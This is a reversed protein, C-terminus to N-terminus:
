RSLFEILSKQQAARFLELEGPQRPPAPSAGPILFRDFKPKLAAPVIAALGTALDAAALAVMPEPDAALWPLIAMARAAPLRGNWVLAAVDRALTLREAATLLSRRRTLAPLLDPDPLTRYYGAAGANAFAWAPCAALPIELSSAEMVVCRGAFGDGKVCVPMTRPKDDAPLGLPAYLDQRLLLRAGSADCRRGLAIVPVGPRDLFDALMARIERRPAQFAAAFDATAAAGFEHAALYRRIGARFADPGLWNELMELVAAGKAYVLPSYVDRMAARSPLPERVPRAARGGDLTMVRDRADAALLGRDAAPQEADMMRSSAWTAFGESLWVDQWGSMTVLNGFWQHALEHAMTARMRRRREATDLGPAALLIEQRYSILGPNEVAGFAGELLALHDLKQFPYPIGTYTELWELLRPTAARAPEAEAARGHPTVIRVPVRNLGARGADVTEFPGAAFAVLSSPLPATPAFVVKKWGGAEATESLVPTNSLATLARPVRLTVEWPTKFRPEDFCPFARRAEIATFTTFVYWGAGSRKHFVGTSTAEGIRGRYRIRVQAAGPGVSRPLALELFEGGAYVVRAPAGDVTASDVRLEKGNLWLFSLPQKLALDIVAVGRFVRAGPAIRLDIAYRLPAAADPLLFRPPAPDAAALLSALWLSCIALRTM